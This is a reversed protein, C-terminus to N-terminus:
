ERDRDVVKIWQAGYRESDEFKTARVFERRAASLKDDYYYSVGLLLRTNGEDELEGKEVAQELVETANKWDERQVYVRGLRAYIDGTEAIEAARTLPALALSYEKAMLWSNGLLEWADADGEVTEEEIAKELVMGGRWPLDHYLYMQTLRRLEKDKTLLGQRYALQQAALSDVDRELEAYVASLQMWYAKQPYHSVLQELLPISEEYRKDEMYLALLLRLHSEKPVKAKDVAVRAPELAGPLDGKQYYCIALRYYADSNPNETEAFFIDLQAIAKDWEELMMYIQAVNFRLRTQRDEEYGGSDLAQQFYKAAEKYAGEGAYAHAYMEFVTAEAFPKLRGINISDLIKRAEVPKEAVLLEVVATLRKATRKDFTQAHGASALLALFFLALVGRKVSRHCTRMSGM